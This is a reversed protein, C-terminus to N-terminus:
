IDSNLQERRDLASRKKNEHVFKEEEEEKEKKQQKTIRSKRHFIFFSLSSL